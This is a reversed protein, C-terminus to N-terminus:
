VACVGTLVSPKGMFTIIISVRQLFVNLSLIADVFRNEEKSGLLKRRLLVTVGVTVITRQFEPYTSCVYLRVDGATRLIETRM